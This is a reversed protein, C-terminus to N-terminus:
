RPGHDQHYMKPSYHNKRSCQIQRCMDRQQVYDKVESSMRPWYLCESAQRQCGDIGLHSAHIRQPMDGRFSVGNQVALENRVNYYPVASNPVQSKDEPWGTLVVKILEQLEHDETNRCIDDVQAASVPLDQAMNVAEVEKQVSTLNLEPLYAWSLTDALGLQSGRRYLLNVDYRVIPFSREM